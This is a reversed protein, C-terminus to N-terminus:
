LFDRNQSLEGNPELHPNSTYKASIRYEVYIWADLYSRCVTLEINQESVDFHTILFTNTTSYRVIGRNRNNEDLVEDGTNVIPNWHQRNKEEALFQEGPFQQLIQTFFQSLSMNSMGDPPKASIDLITTPITMPDAM